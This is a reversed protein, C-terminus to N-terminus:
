FEADKAFKWEGDRMSYCPAWYWELKDEDVETEKWFCKSLGQRSDKFYDRDYRPVTM